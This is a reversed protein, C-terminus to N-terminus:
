RKEKQACEARYALRNALWSAVMLSNGVGAKADGYVHRLPLWTEKLAFNPSHNKFWGSVCIAKETRAHVKVGVLWGDPPPAYGSYEGRDEHAGRGAMADDYADDLKGM